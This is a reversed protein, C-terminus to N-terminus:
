YEALHQDSAAEHQAADLTHWKGAIQVRGLHWNADPLEPAIRAAAALLEARRDSEGAIEARLAAVVQERAAATAEHSKPTKDAASVRFSAPWFMALLGLLACSVLRSM